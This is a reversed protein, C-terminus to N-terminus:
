EWKSHARLQGMRKKRIEAAFLPAFRNWVVAMRIIKPRTKLERFPSHKTM